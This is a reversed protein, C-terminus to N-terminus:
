FMAPFKTSVKGNKQTNRRCNKNTSIKGIYQSKREINEITRIGGM